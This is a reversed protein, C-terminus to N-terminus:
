SPNFKRRGLNLRRSFRDYITMNTTSNSYSVYKDIADTLQLLEEPTGYVDYIDDIISTLCIVKTLFKRAAAYLPEFYM